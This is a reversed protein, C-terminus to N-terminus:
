VPHAGPFSVFCGVFLVFVLVVFCVCCFVLVVFGCLVLCGGGTAAELGKAWAATLEFQCWGRSKWSSFDMLRGMEQFIKGALFEGESLHGQQFISPNGPHISPVGHGLRTKLILFSM